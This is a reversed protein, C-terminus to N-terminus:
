LLLIEIDLIRFNLLISFLKHPRIGWYIFEDIRDLRRDWHICKLIVHPEHLLHPLLRRRDRKIVQVVKLRQVLLVGGRRLWFLLKLDVNVSVKARNVSFIADLWELVL